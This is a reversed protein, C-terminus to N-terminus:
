SRAAPRPRKASKGGESPVFGPAPIKVVSACLWPPRVSVPIVFSSARGELSSDFEFSPIASRYWGFKM